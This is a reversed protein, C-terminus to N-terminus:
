FLYTIGSNNQTKKKTIKNFLSQYFSKQIGKLLKHHKGFIYSYLKGKVTNHIGKGIVWYKSM